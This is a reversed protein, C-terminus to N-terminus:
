SVLMLGKGPGLGLLRTVQELGWRKITRGHRLEELRPVLSGVVFVQPCLGAM